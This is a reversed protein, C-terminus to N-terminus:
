NFFVFHRHVYVFAHLMGKTRFSKTCNKKTYMLIAPTLWEMPFVGVESQFCFVM